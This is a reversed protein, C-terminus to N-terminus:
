RDLNSFIGSYRLLKVVGTQEFNKDTAVTETLDTRKMTDCSVCNVLYRKRDMRDAFLQQSASGLMQHTHVIKVCTVSRITKIYAM